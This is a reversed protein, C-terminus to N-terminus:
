KAATAEAAGAAKVRQIVMAIDVPGLHTPVDKVKGDIKEMLGDKPNIWITSENIMKSGDTNVVAETTQKFKWLDIGDIKDIGQYITKVKVKNDKSAPNDLLTDWTDGEGVEKDTMILEGTARMLKQIEPAFIPMPDPEHAFDTLKGLKDRTETTPLGPKQEQEMGNLKMVGGLDESFVVYAGNDKVTKITQKQSQDLVIDMGQVNAKITVKYTTAVGAKLPRALVLKKGDAHANQAGILALALLAGSLACSVHTRVM